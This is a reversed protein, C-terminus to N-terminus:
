IAGSVGITVLPIVASTEADADGLRRLTRDRTVALAQARLTWNTAGLAFPQSVALGASGYKVNQTGAEYFGRWGVGFLLPVSIRVPRKASSLDFGPEIGIQTFVGHGGRPRVTAAFSPHLAGLGRKREYAVTLSAEHTTADVGNPSTKITYVVGARLGNVPEVVIGLLNNSEYWARPSSPEAASPTHFGNSTTGVLWADAAGGVNHHLGWAFGLQAHVPVRRLNAADDDYSGRSFDGNRVDVGFIPHFAADGADQSGLSADETDITPVTTAGISPAALTLLASAGLLRVSRMVRRQGRRAGDPDGPTPRFEFSHGHPAAVAM